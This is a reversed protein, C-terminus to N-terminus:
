GALGGEERLWQDLQRDAAGKPDILAAPKLERSDSVVARDFAHIVVPVGLQHCRYALLENAEEIKLATIALKARSLQADDLVSLYSVDGVLTRCPLAALKVPDTDIALVTEGQDHLTRALQSGMANMGVLVIHNRLQPRAAEDADEAESSQQAQFMRLLGARRTLQYLSESYLIMYVSGVITVLGILTILSLVSQDILGASLGMAAFIFSFESIQAVTVSTKFSTRESYGFRAIIWM